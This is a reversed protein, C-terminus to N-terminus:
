CATRTRRPNASWEYFMQRGPEWYPPITTMFTFMNSVGVYDVACPTCTPRSPSGPWRRTAAMAALRLHRYRKPDAIGQDVLWKVVTASTM